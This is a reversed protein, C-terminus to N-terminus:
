SLWNEIDDPNVIPTLQNPFHENLFDLVDETDGKRNKVNRLFNSLLQITQKVQEPTHKDIESFFQVLHQEAIKINPHEQVSTVQAPMLQEQQQAVPVYSKNKSQYQPHTRKYEQQYTRNYYRAYLKRAEKNSVGVQRHIEAFDMGEQRLKYIQEMLGEENDEGKTKHYGTNGLNAYNPNYKRSADKGFRPIGIESPKIKFRKILASFGKSLEIWNMGEKAGYAEKEEKSGLYHVKLASIIHDRGKWRHGIAGRKKHKIYYSKKPKPTPEEANGSVKDDIYWTPQIPTPTTQFDKARQTPTYPIGTTAYKIFPKLCDALELLEALTMKDETKLSKSNNIIIEM